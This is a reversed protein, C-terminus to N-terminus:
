DVDVSFSVAAFDESSAEAFSLFAIAL